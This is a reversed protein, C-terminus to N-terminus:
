QWETENACARAGRFVENGVESARRTVTRHVRGERLASDVIACPHTRRPPSLPLRVRSVCLYVAPLLDEPSLEIIARFTATLLAIIALRKSEPAIDDFTIALLAYPAPAGSKWGLPEAVKQVDFAKHLAAAALSGTGVGEMKAASAKKPQKFAKKFAAKQAEQLRLDERETPRQAAGYVPQTHLRPM